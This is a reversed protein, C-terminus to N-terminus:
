QGPSLLLDVFRQESMGHPHQDPPFTDDLGRYQRHADQHTPCECAVMRGCGSDGVNARQGRLWCSPTVRQESESGARHWTSAGLACHEMAEEMTLYQLHPQKVMVILNVYSREAHLSPGGLAPLERPPLYIRAVSGAQLPHRQDPGARSASAM